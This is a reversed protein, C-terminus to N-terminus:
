YNPVMWPVHRPPRRQQKQRAGRRVQVGAARWVQMPTRDSSSATTAQGTHAAARRIKTVDRVESSHDRAEPGLPRPSHDQEPSSQRRRHRSHCTCIVELTLSTAVGHKVHGIHPSLSRGICLRSRECERVRHAALHEVLDDHALKFRGLANGARFVQPFDLLDLWRLCKPGGLLDPSNSGAQTDETAKANPKERDHDTAPPHQPCPRQPRACPSRSCSQIRRNRSRLREWSRSWPSRFAPRSRCTHFPAGARISAAHASGNGTTNGHSHATAFLDQHAWRERVQVHNCTSSTCIMNSDHQTVLPPM